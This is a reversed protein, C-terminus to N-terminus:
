FASVLDGTKCKDLKGADGSRGARKYAHKQRSDLFDLVCMRGSLNDASFGPSREPNKPQRGGGSDSGRA